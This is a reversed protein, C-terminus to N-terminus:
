LRILASTESEVVNMINVLGSLKLVKCVMNKPQVLIVQGGKEEFRRYQTLIAGLGSSDIFDVESLVIILSNVKDNEEVAKDIANKFAQVTHLDLEGQLHCILAQRRKKIRLDM